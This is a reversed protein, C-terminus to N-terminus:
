EKSMAQYTIPAIALPPRNTSALRSLVDAAAVQRFGHLFHFQGTQTVSWIQCVIHDIRWPCTAKRKIVDLLVKSDMEVLAQSCGHAQCTLLGELIARAKAELSTCHGYFMSFAVIVQGAHDRLIGDEGSHEPKGLSSEDM